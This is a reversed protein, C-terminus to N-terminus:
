LVMTKYRNKSLKTPNKIAHHIACVDSRTPIGMCQAMVRGIACSCTLVSKMVSLGFCFGSGWPPRAHSQTPIEMRQSTVGMIPCASYTLNTWVEDSSKSLAFGLGMPCPHSRPSSKRIRQSTVGWPAHLIPSSTPVSTMPSRGPAFGSGWPAHVQVAEGRGSGNLFGRVRVWSGLRQTGQGAWDIM